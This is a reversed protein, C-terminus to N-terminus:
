RAMRLGVGDVIGLLIEDMGLRDLLQFFEQYFAAFVTQRNAQADERVVKALLIQLGHLFFVIRRSRTVVDFTETEELQDEIGVRCDLDLSHQSFMKISLIDGSTKALRDTSDDDFVSVLDCHLGEPLLQYLTFLSDGDEVAGSMVGIELLPQDFFIAHLSLVAM